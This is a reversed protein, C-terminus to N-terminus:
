LNNMSQLQKINTFDALSQKLQLKSLQLCLKRPFSTSDVCAFGMCSAASWCTVKWNALGFNKTDNQWGKKKWTNGTPVVMMHPHKSSKGKKKLYFIIYLISLSPMFKHDLAVACPPYPDTWNMISTSLIWNFTSIKRYLDLPVSFSVDNQLKEFPEQNSTSCV